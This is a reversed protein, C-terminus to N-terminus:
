TSRGGGPSASAPRDPVRQRLLHPPRRVGGAHQQGRRRRPLRRHLAPESGGDAGGPHPRRRRRRGQHRLDPGALARAPVAGAAQRDRGPGADAVGLHHDQGRRGQDAHDGLRVRDQRRARRVPPRDRGPRGEGQVQRLPRGRGGRPGDRPRRGHDAPAGSGPRDRPQEEGTHEKASTRTLALRRRRRARLRPRERLLPGLRFPQILEPTKGTGVLDAITLGVIPSAKFGYTGWGADVIFGDVETVGM